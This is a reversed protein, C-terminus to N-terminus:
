FEFWAGTQFLSNPHRSFYSTRGIVSCYHRYYYYYYKDLVLIFPRTNMLLFEASHKGSLVEGGGWGGGGEERKNTGRRGSNEEGIGVPPNLVSLPDDLTRWYFEEAQFNARNLSIARVVPGEVIELWPIDLVAVEEEGGGREWTTKSVLAIITFQSPFKQCHSSIRHATTLTVVWRFRLFFLHFTYM